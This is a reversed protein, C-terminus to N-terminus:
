VSKYKESIQSILDEVVDITYKMCESPTMQKIDDSEELDANMMEEQNINIYNIINSLIPNKPNILMMNEIISLTYKMIAYVGDVLILRSTEDDTIDDICKQVLETYSVTLQMASSLLLTQANENDKMSELTPCLQKHIKKAYYVVFLPSKVQEYYQFLTQTAVSYVVCAALYNPYQSMLERLADHIKNEYEKIRREDGMQVAISFMKRFGQIAIGKEKIEDYIGM